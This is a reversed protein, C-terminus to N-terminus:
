VSLYKLLHMDTKTRDNALRSQSVPDHPPLNAKDSSFTASGDESDKKWVLICGEIEKKVDCCGRCM